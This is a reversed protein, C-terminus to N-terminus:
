DLEAQRARRRSFWRVASWMLFIWVLVAGLGFMARGVFPGLFAGSGSFQREGPGFAVWTFLTGLGVVIVLAFARYVFQVFAPATAPLGGQAQSLGGTMAQLIVSSGGALFVLGVVTGIWAPTGDPAPSAGISHVVIIAGPVAMTLALISYIWARAM